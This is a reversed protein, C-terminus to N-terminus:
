KNEDTPANSTTIITGVKGSTYFDPLANVVLYVSLLLFLIACGMTIKFATKESKVGAKMVFSVIKPVQYQGLLQRSMLLSSKYEEFEVGM